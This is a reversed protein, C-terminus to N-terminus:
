EPLNRVEIFRGPPLARAAFAKLEDPTITFLTEYQAVYDAVPGASREERTLVESITRNNVYQYKQDLAAVATDFEDATPGNTAVDILDADLVTSLEAIGTPDGSVELFSDIVLDPSREITIRAYPSYSAGLEERIHDTLRADLVSTLLDAMIADNTNGDTTGSYQRILSGTDGSGANVTREVKTAPPDPRVDVVTEVSPELTLTGVYRRALDTVDAVSVDGAVVIVWDGREGFRQQWVREIGAADVSDLEAATPLVAYRREDGYRAEALAVWPAWDPNSLPDDAIDAYYDITNQLAVENVRPAEIYQHFLQFMLELDRGSAAGEFWEREPELGLYHEITSGDLVTDVESQSLEGLGSSRIVDTAVLADAVDADAVLSTGGESDATFVFADDAIDNPNILVTVGNAFELRTADIFLTPESAGQASSVEDVPEPATMLQTAVPNSEERAEISDDNRIADVTALVATETPADAVSDPYNLFLHAGVANYRAVFEAQVADATVGDLLAIALEYEDQASAFRTGTLFHAVYREAYESDHVTDRSDFQGQVSSEYAAVVRALENDDFGFRAVREFETVLTEVALDIQEDNGSVVISPSDITRVSDNSSVYAAQLATTGDSIDGVLRNAIMEFAMDTLLENTLDSSTQERRAVAPLPLTLEVDVGVADPDPALGVRPETFPGVSFDTAQPLDGEATISEFYNRV